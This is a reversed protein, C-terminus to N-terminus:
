IRFVSTLFWFKVFIIINVLFVIWLGFEMSNQWSTWWNFIWAAMRRFVCSKELSKELSFNNDFFEIKPMIYSVITAFLLSKRPFKPDNAFKWVYQDTHYDFNYCCCKSEKADKKVTGTLVIFEEWQPLEWNSPNPRPM